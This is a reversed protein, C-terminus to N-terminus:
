RRYGGLSASRLLDGKKLESSKALTLQRLLAISEGHKGSLLAELNKQV